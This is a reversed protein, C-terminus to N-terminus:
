GKRKTMANFGAVNEKKDEKLLEARNEVVKTYAEIYEDIIATDFHKFWPIFFTKDQVAEANKLVIEEESLESTERKNTPKGSHRVDVRSFIAQKHLAVNCGAIMAGAHKVGVEAHLAEVFRTLSLGDLEESNYLGHCAYWGGNTSGSDKPPRNGKLGPLKDIGDCFYNM